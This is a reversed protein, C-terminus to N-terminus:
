YHGAATAKGRFSRFLYTFYGLALLLAPIWWVLGLLMGRRGAAASHADVDFAADITSRLITPYLACATALLMSAIFASSALFAPLERRRRTALFFTVLSGAAVVVLAGIWPRSALRSFHQPQVYPTACTVALALLAAIAWLGIAASRSRRQVPGTTKWTLYAAGHAGLAALSFVGVLATYWDIAGPNHSPAALDTFLDQSFYGSADIPVGRVVNGLAVGLVVAMVTSCTAFVADWFSRWLLSGHKSRFEIAVGRGVLLWLVIMLALYLGSFAAAYAQPFAFVLTGGAALLWVENGDWVPGIAALVLRREEDTRAVFLHLVGAGFDFGDLVSYVVLMLALLFYWVADM